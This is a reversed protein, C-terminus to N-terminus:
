KKSWGKTDMQMKWKSKHLNNTEKSLSFKKRKSCFYQGSYLFTRARAPLLMFLSLAFACFFCFDKSTLNIQCYLVFNLIVEAVSQAKMAQVRQCQTWQVCQEAADQEFIKKKSAICIWFSILLLINSRFLLSCNEYLKWRFLSCWSCSSFEMLLFAIKYNANLLTPFPISLVFFAIYCRIRFHNGEIRLKRKHSQSHSTSNCFRRNFRFSVWIKAM